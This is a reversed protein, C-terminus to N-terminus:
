STAAARARLAAEVRALARVVVAREDDGVPGHLAAQAISAVPDRHSRLEALRPALEAAAADAPLEALAADLAALTMLASERPRDQDLDLRARLALEECVLGRSRGGLVAALRAQPALVRSRRRRGEPAPLERASTWLGDAVQEGAGYGIRAVTAHRRGVTHLHPDATILRFAHLVRNLVALAAELEDEGGGALWLRAEEAGGLPRGVDIITVRGVTVPTPDPEPEAERRRRAALRRREPAGHTSVVIVHSPASQPQGVERLLYRGDPPGPRWPLEIQAFRFLRPPTSM